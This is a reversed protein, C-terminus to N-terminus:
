IRDKKANLLNLEDLRSDIFAQYGKEGLKEKFEKEFLVAITLQDKILKKRQERQKDTM